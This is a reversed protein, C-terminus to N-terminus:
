FCKWDRTGTLEVATEWSHPSQCGWATPKYPPWLASKIHCHTYLGTLHRLLVGRGGLASKSRRSQPPHSRCPPSGVGGVSGRGRWGCGSRWRENMFRQNADKRWMRVCCLLGGARRRAGGWCFLVDVSCSTLPRTEQCSSSSVNHVEWHRRDGGAHTHTHAHQCVCSRSSSPLMEEEQRHSGSWTLEWLQGCTVDAFLFQQEDATQIDAQSDSTFYWQGTRTSLLVSYTCGAHQFPKWTFLVLKELLSSHSRWLSM